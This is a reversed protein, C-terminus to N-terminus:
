AVVSDSNEVEKADESNGVSATANAQQPQPQAGSYMSTGESIGLIDFKELLELAAQLKDNREKEDGVKGYVFSYEDQTFGAFELFSGAGDVELIKKVSPNSKNLKGAHPNTETKSLFFKLHSVALRVNGTPSSKMRLASEGMSKPPPANVVGGSPQITPDQGSLGGPGTQAGPSTVPSGVSASIGPVAKKDNRMAQLTDRIDKLVATNAKSSIAIEDSIHDIESKLRQFDEKTPGSPLTTPPTGGGAEDLKRWRSDEESDVDSYSSEDDVGRGGRRRRRNKRDGANDKVGDKADEKNATPADAEAGADKAGPEKPPGITITIHPMYNHLLYGLGAGLAVLATAPLLISSWSSSNEQAQALKAVQSSLQNIRARAAQIDGGGTMGLGSEGLGLDGDIGEGVAESAKIGENRGALVLNYERSTPDVKRLAELIEDVTLGKKELFRMRSRATSSRVHPHKLFRVASEVKDSLLNRPSPNPSDGLASGSAQGAGLVVKEDGGHSAM